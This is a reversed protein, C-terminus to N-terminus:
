IEDPTRAVSAAARTAPRDAGGADFYSLILGTGGIPGKTLKEFPQATDSRHFITPRSPSEASTVTGSNITSCRL